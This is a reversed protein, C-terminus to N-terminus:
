STVPQEATVSTSSKARNLCWVRSMGIRASPLSPLRPARAHEAPPAEAPGPDPTAGRDVSGVGRKLSPLTDRGPFRRRHLLRLRPPSPGAAPRPVVSSGAPERVPLLHRDLRLLPQRRPRAERTRPGTRDTPARRGQSDTPPSCFEPHNAKAEVLLWEGRAQGVARDGIEDAHAQVDGLVLKLVEGNGELDDATAGEPHSRPSSATSRARGARHCPLSGEIARADV